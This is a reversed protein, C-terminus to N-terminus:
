PCQLCLIWTESHASILLSMLHLLSCESSQQKASRWADIVKQGPFDKLDENHLGGNPDKAKNASEM